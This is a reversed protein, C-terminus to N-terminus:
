QGRQQDQGVDEDGTVVGGHRRADVGPRRDRDDTVAGDAREAHQGGLLTKSRVTGSSWGASPQRAISSRRAMVVRSVTQGVAAEAAEVVSVATSEGYCSIAPVAAGLALRERVIEHLPTKM